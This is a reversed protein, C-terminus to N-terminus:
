MLTTRPWGWKLNHILFDTLISIEGNEKFDLRWTFRFIMTGWPRLRPPIIETGLLKWSGNLSTMYIRTHLFFGKQALPCLSNEGLSVPNGGLVSLNFHREFTRHFLTDSASIAVMDSCLVSVKQQIQSPSFPVTIVAWQVWHRKFVAFM